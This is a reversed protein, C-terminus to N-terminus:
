HNKYNSMLVLPQGVVYGSAILVAVKYNQVTDVGFNIL